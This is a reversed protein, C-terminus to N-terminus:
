FYLKLGIHFDDDLEFNDRFPSIGFEFKRYGLYAFASRGLKLMLRIAFEDYGDGDLFSFASPAYYFHGGLYVNRSLATRAQFGLGLALIDYDGPSAYITRFGLRFNRNLWHYGLHLVSESNRNRNEKATMIGFDAVENRDMVKALTVRFVDSNVNIDFSAANANSALNGALFFCFLLPTLKGLRITM